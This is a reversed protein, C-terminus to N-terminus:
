PAMAGILERLHSRIGGHGRDLRVGLSHASAKSFSNEPLAPSSLDIEADLGMLEAAMTALDGYRAYCDVLNFPRGAVGPNGVAARVAAAVDDVHVFKGGGPRACRGTARLERVIDYGRSRQLSPDIGYVACPRLASTNRGSEFHEAWLHAEVSAKYAGYASSPRLPQDEDVLNTGDAARVRPMLDHHVAMTSIFIFQRPASAHLLRISGALNGRLHGELDFPEALFPERDVSNHVVCEAGDLLATWCAEDAHDGIVFRQVHGEVHDRRSSGRVLGVVSHGAGHLARAIAGGIFGSVGTVAVRM